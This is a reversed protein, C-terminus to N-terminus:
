MPSYRLVVAAIIMENAPKLVASSNRLTSFGTKLLGSFYLSFCFPMLVHLFRTNSRHVQYARNGMEDRDDQDLNAPDVPGDQDLIVKERVDLLDLSHYVRLHADQGLTVAAERCSQEESQAEALSRAELRDRDDPRDPIRFDAVLRDLSHDVQPLADLGPTVAMELADLDLNAAAVRDDPDLDAALDLADLGPIAEM